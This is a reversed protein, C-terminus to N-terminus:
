FGANVIEESTFVNLSNMSHYPVKHELCWNVCKAINQKVLQETKDHKSHKDILSITYHINEIQQHGFLANIDEINKTFHRPVPRNLFRWVYDVSLVCKTNPMRSNCLSSQDPHSTAFALRLASRLPPPSTANPDEYTLPDDRIESFQASRWKDLEGVNQVEIIQSFSERVVSVFESNNDFRFGKCVVYKESNGIRSTQLKCVNVELYFGALIYLIDITHNYFIDFIKLVFNGGRKQLCLAYCVQGWLLRAISIEQKNFDNSFDFGGDATILDMSSEYKHVCYDFNEIHLLNGTRDAGLEIHINPHQNLFHGSKNWGPVNDDNEDILITMGYYEDNPNERKNCIAEIFGGPGEALHFTRMKLHNVSSEESLGFDGKKQPSESLDDFRRFVHAAHQALDENSTERKLNTSSQIVQRSRPNTMFPHAENVDVNLNFTTIMEIMKFYARSIPKYKAVSRKKHPIASHIYEYPNTFKKYVDWEKERTAIKEKIENIYKRLSQSVAANPETAHKSISIHEFTHKPSSPLLFYIM